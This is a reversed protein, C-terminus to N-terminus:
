NRFRNCADIVHDIEQDTLASHCPLSLIEGSRRETNPLSVPGARDKWAPQLHDPRPYHIATQIGEGRLHEILARRHGCRVPYLHVVDSADGPRPAVRILPNALGTQYRQGISRRKRNGTELRPLRVRLCAAQIEDLRSNRGGSLEHVYKEGWGYQRLRRVREIRERSTSFVGGADGLAGLNKTPYFSFCGIDGWSGATHGALRAGHAQACDEIILTGADRARKRLTAMDAMRGYLHTVLMASAPILQDQTLQEPDILGSEDDVDVYIPRAGCALIATTAYGGANAVTIVSDGPGIDLARLALELADTGNAVGAVHGGGLFEAFEREFHELEEGLAFWGSDVVRSLAADLDPRLPALERELDNLAIVLPISRSLGCPM